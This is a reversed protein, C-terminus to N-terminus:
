LRALAAQLRDVEAAKEARDARAKDVAEPKAKEVFAPNALRAALSDREKTIAAMAAALRAREAAPDVTSEYALTYAAEGVIIQIGAGGGGFNWTDIRAIKSIAASNREIRACTEPSAGTVEVSLKAAPPIQNDARASRIADIVSIVWNIEAQAQSDAAVAPDPWRAHILRGSGGDIGL